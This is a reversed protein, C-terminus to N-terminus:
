LGLYLEALDAKLSDGDGSAIIEGSRMVYSRDAFSVARTANQEVLLVTLGEARLGAIADFVQDIILPALGLSPEDMLLLRPRALLARSIALQQQEGGSLMGAPTSLYEALIPFRELERQLDVRAQATDKRISMGLQLNEKVTLGGFIRRGEPVLSVGLRVIAEPSPGRAARAITRGELQVEGRKARVLGAICNLLTTKGAGNPGVLSVVEGAEVHLAVGRVALIRGYAVELDKIELVAKM